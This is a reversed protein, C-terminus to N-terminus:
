ALSSSCILNVTHKSGELESNKVKRRVVQSDLLNKKKDKPIKPLELSGFNFIDKKLVNKVKSRSTINRQWFLPFYYLVPRFSPLLFFIELYSFLFLIVYHPILGKFASNFGMQLKSTNDPSKTNM